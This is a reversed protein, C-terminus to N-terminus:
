KNKAEKALNYNYYRTSGTIDEIVRVFPPFKVSKHDTIGKTELIMLGQLQDLYTDLEFYQGKWIFSKRQKHISVREPDALAIMM